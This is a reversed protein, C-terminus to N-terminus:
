KIVELLKQASNAWTFRSATQIGAENYLSDGGQKRRHVDRMHSVLADFQDEGLHAWQGGETREPIFWVGDSATELEDIEILHANRGDIFETQGSYNTMIIEKGMSLYELAPLCFGEARTPFVACDAKAMEKILEKTPLRDKFVVQDGLVKKYENMWWHNGEGIFPNISHMVLQVNDSPSFAARFAHHLVDHGKRHEWKGITQFVTALSLRSDIPAFIERNVGLPVVHTNPEGIDDLMVQRAWNSCVILEDCLCIHHEEHSNFHNLEFIPFGYLKGRGIRAALDFQHYLRVTPANPDFDKQQALGVNLANGYDPYDADYDWGGIPWLCPNKGMWYLALNLNHACLGYSTTATLPAMLNFM